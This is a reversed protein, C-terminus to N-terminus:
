SAPLEFDEIFRQPDSEIRIQEVITSNLVGDSLMTLINERKEEGKLYLVLLRLISVRIVGALREAEETTLLEKDVSYTGHFLASRRKYMQRLFKFNEVRENTDGSILLSAYLSIKYSLEEKDSPSFLSELSIALHILRGVADKQQMSSEYFDGARLLAQRLKNQLNELRGSVHPTQYIQWWRNVETVEREVLSYFRTGNAYPIRRPDGVFALGRKRIRNVWEPLFYPATYDIDVIGDKFYQLIGMFELSVARESYLWDVVNPCGGLSETIVFCDGTQHNHLFNYVAIDGIVELIDSAELRMIQVRNFRLITEPSDFNYLHSLTLKRFPQNYTIQSFRLFLEDYADDTLKNEEILTVADFIFYDVLYALNLATDCCERLHQDESLVRELEAKVREGEFRSSQVLVHKEKYLASHQEASVLWYYALFYFGSGIEKLVEPHTERVAAINEAWTHLYTKFNPSRQNEPIPQTIYINPKAVSMQKRNLAFSKQETGTQTM